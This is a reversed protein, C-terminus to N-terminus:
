VLRKKMKHREQYTTKYETKGSPLESLDTTATIMDFDVVEHKPITLLKEPLTHKLIMLNGHM